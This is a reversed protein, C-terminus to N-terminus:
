EESTEELAMDIFSSFEDFDPAGKFPAGNLLFTPTSTIKLRRAEKLDEQVM